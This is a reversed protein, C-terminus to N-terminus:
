REGRDVPRTLTPGTVAKATMVNLAPSLYPMASDPEFVEGLKLFSLFGPAFFRHVFQGCL